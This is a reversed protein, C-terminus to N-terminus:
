DEITVLPWHRPTDEIAESIYQNKTSFTRKATKGIEDNSAM